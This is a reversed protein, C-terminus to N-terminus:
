ATMLNHIIFYIILLDSYIKGNYLNTKVALPAL